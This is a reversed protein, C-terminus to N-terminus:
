RGEKRRKDRQRQLDDKLQQDERHQRKIRAAEREMDAYRDAIKQADTRKDRGYRM